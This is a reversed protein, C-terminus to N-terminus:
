KVVKRVFDLASAPFFLIILWKLRMKLSCNEFAKKFLRDFEKRNETTPSSYTKAKAILWYIMSIDRTALEKVRRHEKSLVGFLDSFIGPLGDITISIRKVLGQHAFSDNEGRKDILVRASYEVRLSQKISISFFRAVHGWCTNMHQSSVRGELWLLRRFLLGSMFSFVAETNDANNLYSIRDNPRNLDSVFSGGSNFIKYDGASKMSIDCITHMSLYIDSTGNIMKDICWALGAEKLIDDGSLLLCHSGKAQAVARDMDHDIGGKFEQRFYKIYPFRLQLESAIKPTDDTSGGDFILLEFDCEISQAQSTVSHVADSLFKGCNHVPIVISLTHM